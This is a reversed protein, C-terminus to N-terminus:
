KERSIVFDALQKMTEAAINDTDFDKLIAKAESIFTRAMDRSTNLSGTQTIIDRLEDLQKQDIEKGLHDNIYKRQEIDGNKYARLILLTKKGERLDNGSPKGTKDSNGFVGLIDDQIQFAMGVLYAFRKLTPVLEQNNELMLGLLMPTEFTYKASVLEMGKLYKEEKAEFVPIKNQFYHMQWGAQTNQKTQNILQLIEVKKKDEIDLKLIIEGVLSNVYDGAIIALSIGSYSDEMKEELKKHLSLDGYRKEDQDVIDDHILFYQHLLEIAAGLQTVLEMNEGGALQNAQRLIFPRIRKGSRLIQKEILDIQDSLEEDIKNAEAKKQYLYDSLFEDIQEKNELLAKELNM